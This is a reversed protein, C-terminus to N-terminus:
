LIERQCWLCVHNFRRTFAVVNPAVSLKNKGNWGCTVLENPSIAKFVPIDILTLQSAFDEPDVRIVDFTIPDFDKGDLKSVPPHEEPSVARDVYQAYTSPKVQVSARRETRMGLHIFIEMDQESYKAVGM